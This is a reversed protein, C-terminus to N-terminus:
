LRELRYVTENARTMGKEVYRNPRIALEAESPPNEPDLLVERDLLECGFVGDCLSRIESEEVSFPPGAAEHQPYEFSLLLGVSGVPLIEALHRMYALRMEVPLAVLAARDYWNVELGEDSLYEDVFDFFNGQFLEIGPSAWRRFKGCSQLDPQIDAEAFFSSIAIESVEVGVTLHGRGALWHLDLSKGALPVLVPAQRFVGIRSWWAKLKPNTVARHWGVQDSLWRQKWFEIQM